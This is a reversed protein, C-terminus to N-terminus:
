LCFGPTPLCVHQIFVQLPSRKPLHTLSTSVGARLLSQAQLWTFRREAWGWGVKGPMTQGSQQTNWPRPCGVKHARGAWLREEPAQKPSPRCWGTVWLFSSLGWLGARTADPRAGDTMLWPGENRPRARRTPGASLVGGARPQCVGRQIPPAPLPRASFQRGLHKEEESSPRGQRGGGGPWAARATLEATELTSIPSRDETRMHCTVPFTKLLSNASM